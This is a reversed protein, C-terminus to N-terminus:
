STHIECWLTFFDPWFPLFIIPVVPVCELPHCLLSIMETFNLRIMEWDLQKYEWDQKLDSYNNGMNVIVSCLLLQQMYSHCMAVNKGFGLWVQPRIERDQESRSTM